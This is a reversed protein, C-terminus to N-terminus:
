RAADPLRQLAEDVADIEAAIAAAAACLSDSRGQQLDFEVAACLSSLRQAGVNASSSKLTHVLQRLVAPSAAEAAAALQPLMRRTSTSFADAVRAILRGQGSPDLARLKALADADLEAPCRVPLANAAGTSTPQGPARHAPSTQLHEQGDPPKAM